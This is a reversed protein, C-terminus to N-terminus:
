HTVTPEQPSYGTVIRGEVALTGDSLFQLLGVLSRREVVRIREHLSEVTDDERVAVPTQVVIPGTDVGADVLHITSGTVKVGEALADRVAHAGPFAPLLAPHTNLVRQPFRELFAPSLIRMFGASVVWDPSFAAVDEALQRNWAERDAGRELPRVFHPIGAAAAREVVRAGPRDTGIAAVDVGSDLVSQALSGSGSALIVCRVM